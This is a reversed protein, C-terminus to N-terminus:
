SGWPKDPNSIRVEPYTKSKARVPEAFRAVAASVVGAGLVPGLREEVEQPDVHEIAEELDAQLQKIWSLFARPSREDENWKDAFNEDPNTPNPIYFKGAFDKLKQLDAM